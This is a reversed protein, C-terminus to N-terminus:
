YKLIKLLVKGKDTILRTINKKIQKQKEPSYFYKTPKEENLITKEKSRIITGENKYHEIDNLEQQYKNIQEINPHLKLKEQSLHDILEQQKKNTPKNRRTFYDIPVTKFYLKGTDWCNNHNKYEKKKKQWFNWFNKFIEQFKKQKLKWIGPGGPNEESIRLIM